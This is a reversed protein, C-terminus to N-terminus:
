KGKEKAERKAFMVDEKDTRYEANCHVEKKCLDPHYRDCDYCTTYKVAKYGEPAENEDIM